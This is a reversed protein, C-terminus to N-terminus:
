PSITEKFVKQCKSSNDQQMIYHMFYLGCIVGYGEVWPEGIIILAIFSIVLIIEPIYDNKTFEYFFSPENAYNVYPEDVDSITTM